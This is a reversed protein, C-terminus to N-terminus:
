KNIKDINGLVFGICYAKYIRYSIDSIEHDTIEFDKGVLDRADRISRKTFSKLIKDPIQTLLKEFDLQILDNKNM